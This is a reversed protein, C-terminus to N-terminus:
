YVTYLQVGALCALNLNNKDLSFHLKLDFITKRGRASTSSGMWSSYDMAATLRGDRAPFLDDILQSSGSCATWASGSGGSSYTPPQLAFSM